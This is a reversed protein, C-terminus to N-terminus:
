GGEAVRRQSSATRRAIPTPRVAKEGELEVAPATMVANRGSEKARYLAGDALRMLQLRDTGHTDSAAVGISASIRAFRNPGIEVPTLEIAARVKEAVARAGALDSNRLLVAFEEGGYRAATDSERLAGRVTRAFSRLAEDGAPHGHTDNFDKFRDLDLMLIGVPRGDRRAAALEKEVLPDFFRANVLGTLPDTMAQNEMRRMLRLNAMALAIQEAIRSATKVDEDGFADDEARELHVVGLVENLSVMPVCLLSGARLPHIECTLSFADFASRTVQVANRRIGPCATPKDVALPGTTPTAADGWSTVVRLQDFSANVLLLDGGVNPVLREFAATGARIIAHEDSAYSILESLRNFVTSREAMEAATDYRRKATAQLRELTVALTGLEDPREAVFNVSEGRELAEATRVLTALPAAVRRYIWWAGISLLVAVIAVAVVLLGLVLAQARDVEAIAAERIKKIELEVGGVAGRVVEFLRVGDGDAVRERVADLDGSAALAIAPEAWELRWREAAEDAGRIARQLEPTPAGLTLADIAGREVRLGHRYPGLFPDDGTLEYGRLGTEQDLLAARLKAAEGALADAEVVTARLGGVSLALLYATIAGIAIVSVCLVVAGALLRRRITRPYAVVAV